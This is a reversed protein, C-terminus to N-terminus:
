KTSGGSILRSKNLQGTIIKNLKEIVNSNGFAALAASGV